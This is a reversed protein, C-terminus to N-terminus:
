IVLIPPTLRCDVIPFGRALNSRLEIGRLYRTGCNPRSRATCKSFGCGQREHCFGRFLLHDGEGDLGLFWASGKKRGPLVDLQNLEAQEASFLPPGERPGGEGAVPM